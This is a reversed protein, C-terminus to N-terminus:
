ISGELCARQLHQTNCARSRRQTSLLALVLLSPGSALQPCKLRAPPVAPHSFLISTSRILDMKRAQATCSPFAELRERPSRHVRGGSAITTCVRAAARSLLLWSRKQVRAGYLLQESHPRSNHASRAGADFRVHASPAEVEFSGSAITSM